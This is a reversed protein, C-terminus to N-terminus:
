MLLGLWWVTPVNQRSGVEKKLRDSKAMLNWM